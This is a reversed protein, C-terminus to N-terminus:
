PPMLVLRFYRQEESGFRFPDSSPFDVMSNMVCNTPSAAIFYPGYNPMYDWGQPDLTSNVQVSYSVGALAQWQFRLWRYYRDGDDYIVIEPNEIVPSVGPGFHFITGVQSNGSVGGSYTTGYFSGDDDLVLEAVPVAGNINNFALLTTFGGNTTVQYITGLNGSIQGYNPQGGNATTGYLAGDQGLALLADAFQGNVGNFSHITTLIGNTTMRFIKGYSHGVSSSITTGYLQGDGARVVGSYPNSGNTGAFNVLTTMDGNTTIRFVTGLNSAGGSWTIGYFDGELELLKGMPSEGNTGNFKFLTSHQGNTTLTFVTGQGGTNTFYSHYTGTATGYLLGDVSETLTCRPYAGNTGNFTVLTAFEGAPSVRFLTGFGNGYGYPLTGNFGLGGFVTSGYFNGDSALLLTADPYSGNTGNFHFIPSLAGQPSVRFVTGHGGNTGGNMAVGYFNGDPGKTLGAECNKGNSVDFQALTNLMWGAEARGTFLLLLLLGCSGRLIPSLNKM